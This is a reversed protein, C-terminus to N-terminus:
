RVMEFAKRNREGGYSSGTLCLIRIAFNQLDAYEDAFSAWWIPPNEEGATIVAIPHGFHNAQKDFDELQIEIRSREEPNAVM